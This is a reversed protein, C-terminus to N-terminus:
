QGTIGYEDLIDQEMREEADRSIEADLKLEQDYQYQEMESEQRARIEEVSPGSNGSQFFISGLGFLMVGIFYIFM